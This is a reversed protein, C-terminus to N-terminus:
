SFLRRLFTTIRKWISVKVAPFRLLEVPTWKKANYNHHAESPLVNVVLDLHATKRLLRDIKETKKKQILKDNM